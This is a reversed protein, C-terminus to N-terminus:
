DIDELIDKLIKVVQLFLQKQEVNMSLSQDLLNVGKWNYKESYQQSIARVGLLRGKLIEAVLIPM